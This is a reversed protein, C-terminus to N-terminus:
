SSDIRCIAAEHLLVSTQIRFDPTCGGAAQQSGGASQQSGVDSLHFHSHGSWREAKSRAGNVVTLSGIGPGPGDVNREVQAGGVFQLADLLVAPPFVGADRVGCAVGDFGVEGRELAAGAAVGKAAAHRSDRCEDRHQLNAVMDDAPMVDVTAGRAQEGLDDRMVANLEAEDVGRVGVVDAIGEAGSGPEDVDFRGGVRQHHEGINAGDRIDAVLVADGHADVVGEHRGVKLPGDLQAGINDHVRGGLEEVAMGVAKASDEDRRAGVEGLLKAEHLLAGTADERRELGPEDQAADLREGDAHALVVGVAARDGAKERLVRLHAADKIGSKRRVRLM